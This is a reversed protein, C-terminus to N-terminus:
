TIYPLTKQLPAFGSQMGDEINKFTLRLQETMADLQQMDRGEKRLEESLREYNAIVAKGRMSFLSVLDYLDKLSQQFQKVFEPDIM